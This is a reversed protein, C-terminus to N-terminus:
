APSGVRGMVTKKIAGALPAGLFWRGFLGLTALMVVGGALFPLARGIAGGPPVMTGVTSDAAAGLMALLVAGAVARAAATLSLGIRASLAGILAVARLLYTVPVLWVATSLSVDRLLVFGAVLVAVAMMQIRMQQGVHGLGRLVGGALMGLSICPIAFALASMYPAAQLWKRGYVLELVAASELAVLTFLPITLFCVATLSQRFKERLDALDDQLRAAAAFAVGQAAAMFFGVPAKSLNYAVSYLGLTHMGWFRGVLVRDFNDLSWGAIDTALSKVGFTVMAGDGRLRLRLRHRRLLFTAVLTFVTQASFGAVLSWVGLGKIACVAAVGGYGATYGVLQILLVGKLHLDRRLLSTPINALALLPVWMACVRFVPALTPDGFQAALFPAAAAVVLAGVVGLLLCWGLALAVDDDTLTKKQVLASGFGGDAIIYAFAIVTFVAAYQGFVLPDLLRALAVQVVLQALVRGAGGGAGWALARLSRSTIGEATTASM